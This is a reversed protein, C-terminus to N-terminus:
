YVYHLCLLINLQEEVSLFEVNREDNEGSVIVTGYSDIFIRDYKAPTHRGNFAVNRGKEAVMEKIDSVIGRKLEFMERERKAYRDM